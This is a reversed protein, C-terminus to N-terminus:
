RRDCKGVGSAGDSNVLCVFSAGRSPGECSYGRPRSLEKGLDACLKSKVEKWDRGLTVKDFCDERVIGYLTCVRAQM